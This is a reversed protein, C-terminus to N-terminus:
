CTQQALTGGLPVIDRRATPHPHPRAPLPGVALPPSFPAPKAAGAISGTDVRCQGTPPEGLWIPTTTPKDLQMTSPEGNNDFKLLGLTQCACRSLVKGTYQFSWYSLIVLLISGTVELVWTLM